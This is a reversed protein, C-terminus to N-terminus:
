PHVVILGLYREMPDYDRDSHLLSHRHAICFTGILMDITKRVTVGRSRLTRYNTAAQVALAENVMPLVTFRRLARAVLQAERDTALGQLVECLILDGVALLALHEDITRRLLVAQPTLNENLHDIWVTSDVVIM